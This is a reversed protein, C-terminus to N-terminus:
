RRSHFSPRRVPRRVRKKCDQWEDSLLENCFSQKLSAATISINKKTVQRSIKFNDNEILNMLTLEFNKNSALQRFVKGQLTFVAKELDVPVGVGRILLKKSNTVVKIGVEEVVSGDARVLQYDSFPLPATGVFSFEILNLTLPKQTNQVAFSFLNQWDDKQIISTTTRTVPFEFTPTKIESPSLLQYDLENSSERNKNKLSAKGTLPASTPITAEVEGLSLIKVAVEKGGFNASIVNLLNEGIIKVKKGYAFGETTEIKSISPKPYFAQNASAPLTFSVSNSSGWKNSVTITSNGDKADNPLVIKASTTGLNILSLNAVSSSVKFNNKSNGFNRGIITINGGTADFKLKTIKPNLDESFEYNFVEGKWGDMETWATGSKPPASSMEIESGFLTVEQGNLMIKTKQRDDLSASLDLNFVAKKNQDHLNFINSISPFSNFTAYDFKPSSFGNVKLSIMGSHPLLTSGKAFVIEGSSVYTPNSLTNGNDFVLSFESLSNEFGSFGKGYVHFNELLLNISNVSVPSAIILNDKTDFEFGDKKAVISCGAFDDPLTLTASFRLQKKVEMKESACWFEATDLNKGIIKLDNGPLLGLPAEVKKIAPERLSLYIEGSELTETSTTKKVFLRGSQMDKTLQFSLENGYSNAVSYDDEGIYIKLKSTDTGFNAGTVKILDGAKPINALDEITKIQPTTSNTVLDTTLHNTSIEGGLFLITLGLVFSVIKLNKQNGM